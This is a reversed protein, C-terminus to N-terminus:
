FNEYCHNCLGFVLNPSLDPLFRTSLNTFDVLLNLLDTVLVLLLTYFGFVYLLAM